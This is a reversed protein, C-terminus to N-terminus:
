DALWAEYFIQNPGGSGGPGYLVNRVRANQAWLAVANFVPIAYGEEIIIKQAEDTAKRREAIDTTARQKDLLADIKNDKPLQFRNLTKTSYVARLVDADALYWTWRHLDYNGSLLAEDFAGGNLPRLKLDIGIDHAQQQVVELFAQNIAGARYSATITLPKGDKVRIGDAGDKWGADELRKRALDPDFALEKSLDLYNPAQPTLIGTAAPQYGNFAIDAVEKRNIGQRLALRVARDALVPRSVNIVLNVAMGLSNVGTIPYGAKELAAADQVSVNQIVDAQRSKLAGTRVSAEPVMKYVVKDLYAPGGHTRLKSPWNYDPRKALITEQNFVVKETTFPGSGIVGGACRADPTKDLTARAVIGLEATSTAQLFPVNPQEFSIQVTLPDLVAIDAIGKLYAGGAAGPIKALRDFNDKVLAADLKSGDSFTVDPRLRFTYRTADQNVDWSTALWPVIETPRDYSQETLSDVLQRGENSGFGYNSQQPDICEEQRALAVVLAGGSQPEAQALALGSWTTLSWALAFLAHRGIPVAARGLSM